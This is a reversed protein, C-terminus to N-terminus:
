PAYSARDIHNAYGNPLLYKIHSTTNYIFVENESWAGGKIRMTERVSCL